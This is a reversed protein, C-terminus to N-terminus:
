FKPFAAAYELAKEHLYHYREMTDNPSDLNELISNRYGDTRKAIYKQVCGLNEGTEIDYMYVTYLTVDYDCDSMISDFCAEETHYYDFQTGGSWRWEPKGNSGYRELRYHTIQYGRKGAVPMLLNADFLGTHVDRLHEFSFERMASIIKKSDEHNYVGIADLTKNARYILRNRFDMDNDGNPMLFIEGLLLKRAIEVYDKEKQM